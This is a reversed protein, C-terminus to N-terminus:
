ATVKQRTEATMVTGVVEALHEIASRERLTAFAEGPARRQHAAVVDLAAQAVASVQLETM